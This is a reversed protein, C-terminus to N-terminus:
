NERSKLQEYAHKVKRFADAELQRVRETSLVGFEDALQQLTLADKESLWRAELIRRRRPEVWDLIEPVDAVMQRLAKAIFYDAIDRVRM